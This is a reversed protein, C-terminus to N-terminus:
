PRNTVTINLRLAPLYDIVVNVASASGRALAQLLPLGAAAPIARRLSELAADDLQDAAAQLWQGIQGVAQMVPGRPINRLEGNAGGMTPANAGEAPAAPAETGPQAPTPEATGLHGPAEAGPTEITM